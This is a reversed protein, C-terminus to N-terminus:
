GFRHQALKVLQPHRMRNEDVLDFMGPGPRDAIQDRLQLRHAAFRQRQALDRDPHAIILAAFLNGAVDVERQFPGIAVPGALRALPDLDGAVQQFAFAILAAVQELCQGIEVIPQKFGQQQIFRGVLRSDHSIQGGIRSFAFHHRHQETRRERAAPHLAQEFQQAVFHRQWANRCASQAYLIAARQMDELHGIASRHAPKRQPAHQAAFKAFAIFQHHAARGFASSRQEKHLAVLGGLM